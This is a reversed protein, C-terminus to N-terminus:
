TITDDGALYRQVTRIRVGLERGIEEYTRGDAALARAREARTDAAVGQSNRRGIADTQGQAGPAFYWHGVGTGLVTIEDAHGFDRQADVRIQFVHGDLQRTFLAAEYWGHIYTSGLMTAAENGGGKDSMHHTLVIGAGTEQKLRTLWHLLPKLPASDKEDVVGILMYLPDLFVYGFGGARVYELLWDRHEPDSLDFGAQSLVEFAPVSM